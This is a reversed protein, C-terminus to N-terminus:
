SSVVNLVGGDVALIQGNVYSNKTFFIVAQAMEADSGARGHPVHGKEQIKEDPLDSKQQEDSEKATMESPFYGPAISNVRIRLKQFEASMLKSLHVTGGKAANYSFHGQADKIIGSMSSIVIVSASLHGHTETGAQLLPLLVVTSFYVATVDTTYTDAWGEFTENDFLKKKMDTAKEADPIAKEGSVGASAVLLNIYKEKSALEQYMRELDDKKTVDCPSLPIIQGGEDPNHSKAATELAEQRRGTIYVKAGNAALAQAAMLGIGSGGGTVVCVYGKVSFLKAVHLDDTSAKAPM